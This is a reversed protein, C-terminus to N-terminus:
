KKGVDQLGYLIFRQTLDIPQCKTVESKSFIKNIVMRKTVFDEINNNLYKM